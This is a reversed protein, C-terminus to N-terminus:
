ISHGFQRSLHVLKERLDLYKSRMSQINSIMQGDGPEIERIDYSNYSDNHRAELAKQYNPLQNKVWESKTIYDRLRGGSSESAHRFVLFNLYYSVWSAMNEYTYFNTKDPLPEDDPILLVPLLPTDIGHYLLRVHPNYESTWEDRCSLMLGNVPSVITWTHSTTNQIGRIKDFFSEKETTFANFRYSLLAEGRRVWRGGQYRHDHLGPEMTVMALGAVPIGVEKLSPIFLAKKGFTISGPVNSTSINDQM